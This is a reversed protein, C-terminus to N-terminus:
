VGRQGAHGLGVAPEVGRHHLRQQELAGEAHGLVVDGVEVAEVVRAVRVLRAGADLGALDLSRQEHARSRHVADAGDGRCPHVHGLLGGTEGWPPERPHKEVREGLTVAMRALARWRSLNVWSMSTPLCRSVASSGSSWPPWSSPGLGCSSSAAESADHVAIVISIYALRLPQFTSPM